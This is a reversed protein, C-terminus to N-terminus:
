NDSEHTEGLFENIIAAVTAPDDMHVHHEGEIVLHRCGAVAAVRHALYDGAWAQLTATTLILAPCAIGALIAQAQEETPLMPSKWLLRPDTIWRFGEANERMARQVLLRASDISMPNNAQRQLAAEELSTYVRRHQKGLRVSEMSKRLRGVLLDAPESIVGLGDVMLLSEVRDPAAAAFSSAVAAGLSHGILLCSDWGLSDLVADLDFLYDHFFYHAGVPRHDSHGHGAFDLAVLDLGDLHPALPAFSAANDMWGHLCLAKPAGPKSWALASLAGWDTEIRLEAPAANM